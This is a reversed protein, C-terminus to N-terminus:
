VKAESAQAYFGERDYIARRNLKEYMRVYLLSEPYPAVPFLVKLPIYFNSLNFYMKRLNITSVINSYRESSNLSFRLVTTPTLAVYCVPHHIVVVAMRCWFSHFGM